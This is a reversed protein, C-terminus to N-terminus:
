EEEIEEKLWKLMDPKIAEVARLLEECNKAALNALIFALATAMEEIGGESIYDYRTM